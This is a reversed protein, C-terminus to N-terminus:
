NTSAVLLRELRSPAVVARAREYALQYVQQWSCTHPLGGHVFVAPCVIFGSMTASGAMPTPELAFGLQERFRHQQM